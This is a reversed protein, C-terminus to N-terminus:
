PFFKKIVNLLMENDPYNKLTSRWINEAEKKTGKMWLVEGLHSAIEPDSKIVFAQKLYSIGADLDGLRYYVWGLSDMIYPDEPSLKVAREILELAEPLRSSHEAFSYGLANYAHAHNPNLQILRRLDRELIDLKGIKEAAMARDYLLDPYDPMRELGNSLLHFVKQHAGTGRLLEAEATILQVRQPDDKAPIDRLYKLAEDLEGRKALLFAYKIQAPFYKDGEVVAQYSKMAADIRQTKEYIEALYLHISNLDRYDLELIRKFSTEAVVYDRLEMSLLGVALFINADISGEELLRQFQNRAATYDKETMLVKAYAIRTNNAKPYTKLYNKYFEIASIVSTKQLIQGQYVAAIEWSPRLILAFKMEELAIDFKNAFWAAQSIAFHAEPVLSYPKSLRRVLEFIEIKNSNNALLNNLQMFFESVNNKQATLLKELHPLAEILNGTNALLAAKTQHAILSEPDSEVWITAATLALSLQQSHLAIETARQAIRPDRTTKTLRLYSDTAVLANGRQLATEGLLFDLLVAVTLEQKPLNSQKTQVHETSKSADMGVKNPISTCAVLGFFFLLGLFKFKMFFYLCFKYSVRKNKVLLIM